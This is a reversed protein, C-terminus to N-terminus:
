ELLATACWLVPAQGHMDGTKRKRDLYYQRSNKKGTGQCINTMDGDENLYSTLAGWAKRAAPAFQAAPLWGKKVGVIMAYTFMGTGSTEPWSATDDILQLWMGGPTQYRLLGAMMKKYGAMIRPRHPNDEPLSQLIEAMGAAFWGNGRGWYYPVDPAHYFLGNDRQMADLYLTMEKAARDIYKRDGTARYAQTEIITLMYMDDVWLRTQFSYGERYFKLSRASTRSPPPPGWQADAMRQGIYLYRKDKTLMYIEFPVAGFVTHDVHDAPPILSSDIGFLPEFRKILQRELQQNHSARAFTLAGYWTCTEPYYVMNRSRKVPKTIFREAVRDGIERPSMGQPFNKLDGTDSQAGCGSIIVTALFVLTKVLKTQM